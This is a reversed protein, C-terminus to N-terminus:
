QVIKLLYRDQYRIYSSFGLLPIPNIDVGVTRVELDAKILLTDLLNLSPLTACSVVAM